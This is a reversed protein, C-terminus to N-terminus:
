IYYESCLRPVLLRSRDIMLLLLFMMLWHIVIERIYRHWDSMVVMYMLLHIRRLFEEIFGCSDWVNSLDPDM